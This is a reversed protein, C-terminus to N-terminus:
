GLASALRSRGRAVLSVLKAVRSPGGKAARHAHRRTREHAAATLRRELECDDCPMLAVKVPLAVALRENAIPNDSARAPYVPGDVASATPLRRSM